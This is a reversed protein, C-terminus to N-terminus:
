EEEKTTSWPQIIFQAARRFSSGQPKRWESWWLSLGVALTVVILDPKLEDGLLGGSLVYGAALGSFLAIALALKMGVLLPTLMPPNWGWRDVADLYTQASPLLILAVVYPVQMLHGQEQDPGVSAAVIPVWLCAFAMSRLVELGGHVIQYPTLIKKM